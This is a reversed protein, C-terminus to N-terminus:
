KPMRPEILWLAVVFASAAFALVILGVAASNPSM